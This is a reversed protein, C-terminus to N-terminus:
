QAEYISNKPRVPLVDERQASGNVGRDKVEVVVRFGLRGYVGSPKAPPTVVNTVCDRSWGRPLYSKPLFGYLESENFFGKCDHELGGRTVKANRYRGEKIPESPGQPNKRPSKAYYQPDFWDSCMEDMYGILDCVGEPTAGEPFSAVPIRNPKDRDWTRWGWTERGTPNADNGWPYMRGKSGRCIYEWEAETPLRCKWKTQSSLWSCYREALMWSECTTADDEAGPTCSWKGDVLTVNPKRSLIKPYLYEDPKVQTENLFRVFQAVTVPTKGVYFSSLEVAHEPREDEDEGDNCGMTFEGGSIFVFKGLGPGLLKEGDNVRNAVIASASDVHHEAVGPQRKDPRKAEGVFWPCATLVALLMLRFYPM